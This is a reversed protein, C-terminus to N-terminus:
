KQWKTLFFKGTRKNMPFLKLWKKHFYLTTGEPDQVTNPTFWIFIVYTHPQFSARVLIKNTM